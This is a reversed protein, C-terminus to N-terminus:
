SLYQRLVASVGIFGGLVIMWRTLGRRIQEKALREIAAGDNIKPFEVGVPVDVGLAECLPAWGDKVDVFYLKEKPVVRKLYELHRDWVVRSHLVEPSEGPRLYLEGYRGKILHEAYKPFYRLCPVWFVLVSLFGQLASKATAAMSKAWAEPDRVTCIVKADPYLEMLEEVFQGLPTDTTAVYGSTLERIKDLVFKRDEPSEYPTRSLIEIWSKVHTEDGSVVIQTASHYVPGKLITQLAASFSATGTRGLGAGIVQLKAGSQPKSAEAGMKVAEQQKLKLHFAVSASSSSFRYLAVPLRNKARLIFGSIQLGLRSKLVGFRSM